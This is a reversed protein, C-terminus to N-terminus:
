TDYDQFDFFFINKGDQERYEEAWDPGRVVKAEQYIGKAQIRQSLSRESVRERNWSVRCCCRGATHCSM